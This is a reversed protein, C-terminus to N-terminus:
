ALADEPALLTPGFPGVMNNSCSGDCVDGDKNTRRQYNAKPITKRQHSWSIMMSHYHFSWYASGCTGKQRQGHSPPRGDHHPPPVDCNLTKRDTVPQKRTAPMGFLLPFFLFYLSPHSLPGFDPSFLDSFKITAFVISCAATPPFRSSLLM